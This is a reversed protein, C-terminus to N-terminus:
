QQKPKSEANKKAELEQVNTNAGDLEIKNCDASNNVEDSSIQTDQVNQVLDYLDEDEDDSTLADNNNLPTRHQDAARTEQQTLDGVFAKLDNKAQKKTGFSAFLKM